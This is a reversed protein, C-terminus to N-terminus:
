CNIIKKSDFDVYGLQRCAVTAEREGLSCFGSWLGKYCYELVGEGNMANDGSLRLDGDACDSGGAPPDVCREPTYCTVGAVKLGPTTRKQKGKELSFTTQTCEEISEENGTCQLDSFHVTKNPLAAQKTFQAVTGICVTFTFYCLEIVKAHYFHM